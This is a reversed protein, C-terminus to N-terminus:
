RICDWDFYSTLIFCPFMQYFHIQVVYLFDNPFFSLNWFQTNTKSYSSLVARCILLGPLTFLEAGTVVLVQSYLNNGSLSQLVSFGINTKRPSFAIQLSFNYLTYLQINIYLYKIFGPVEGERRDTPPENWINQIQIKMLWEEQSERGRIHM